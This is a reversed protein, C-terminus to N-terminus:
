RALFTHTSTVTAAKHDLHLGCIYRSLHGAAKFSAPRETNINIVLGLIM